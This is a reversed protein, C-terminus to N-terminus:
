RVVVAHPLQNVIALRVHHALEHTVTFSTLSYEDANSYQPHILIDHFQAIVLGWNEM